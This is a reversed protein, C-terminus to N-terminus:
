IVGTLAGAGTNIFPPAFVGSIRKDSASTISPTLEGSGNISLFRVDGCGSALDDSSFKSSIVHGM